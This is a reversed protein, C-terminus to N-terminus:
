VNKGTFNFFFFDWGLAALLLTESIERHKGRSSQPHCNSSALITRVARYLLRFCAQFFVTRGNRLSIHVFASPFKSSSQTKPDETVRGTFYSSELSRVSLNMDISDVDM